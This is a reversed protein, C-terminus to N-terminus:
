FSVETGRMVQNMIYMNTNLQIKISKHTYFYLDIRTNYKKSSRHLVNWQRTFHTLPPKLILINCLM